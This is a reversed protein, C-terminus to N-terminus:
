FSISNLVLSIEIGSSRSQYLVTTICGTHPPFLNTTTYIYKLLLLLSEDDVLPKIIM